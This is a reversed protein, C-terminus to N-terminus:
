PLGKGIGRLCAVATHHGIHRQCRHVLRHQQFYFGVQVIAVLQEGVALLQPQATRQCLQAIKFSRLLDVARYFFAKGFLVALQVM